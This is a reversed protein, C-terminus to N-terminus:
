PLLTMDLVQDAFYPPLTDWPNPVLVDDTVYVMGVKRTRAYDLALFVDDEFVTTHILHAFHAAPFASACPSALRARDASAGRSAATPRRV